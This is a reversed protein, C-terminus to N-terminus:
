DDNRAFRLLGDRWVFFSHIAESRECHRCSLRGGERPATRGLQALDKAKFFLPRLSFRTGTAGAAERAFYFACSNTVV